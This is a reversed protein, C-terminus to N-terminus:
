LKMKKKSEYVLKQGISTIIDVIETIDKETTRFNVICVRLVYKGKVWAHSVYAKGGM